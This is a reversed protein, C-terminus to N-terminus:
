ELLENQNQTFNQTDLNPICIQKLNPCKRSAPNVLTKMDQCTNPLTVFIEKLNLYSYIETKVPGTSLAQYLQNNQNM